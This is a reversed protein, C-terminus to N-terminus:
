NLLGGSATIRLETPGIAQLSSEQRVFAAPVPIRVFPFIETRAFFAGVSKSFSGVTLSEKDTPYSISPHLCSKVPRVYTLAVITGPSLGNLAVGIRRRSWGFRIQGSAKALSRKLYFNTTASLTKVQMMGSPFWLYAKAQEEVTRPWPSQIRQPASSGYFPPLRLAHEGIGYSRETKLVTETRKDSDDETLDKSQPSSHSDKHATFRQAEFHKPVLGRFLSQRVACM